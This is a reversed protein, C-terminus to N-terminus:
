EPGMDHFVGGLMHDAGLCCAMETFGVTVEDIHELIREYEVMKEGVGCDTSVLIACEDMLRWIRSVLLQGFTVELAPSLAQPSSCTM